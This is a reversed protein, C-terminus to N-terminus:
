SSNSLSAALVRERHEHRVRKFRRYGESVAITMGAAGFPLWDPLSRKPEVPKALEAHSIIAIDETMRVLLWPEDGRDDLLGRVRLVDGEKFRSARYGSASKIKVELMADGLDLTVGGSAVERVTGTVEILSWGDEMDPANLDVPRPTPFAVPEIQEWKDKTGVGLSLGDDNLTLTGTVRVTEGLKPTPQKSSGRVLVGHGDPSLLVYYNKNVIGPKTAVTGKISIRINPDIKTLMAHTVELAADPAKAATKKTTKTKPKAVPGAAKEGRPGALEDGEAVDSGSENRISGSESDGRPEHDLTPLEITDPPPTTIVAQEIETEVEGDLVWAMEESNKMWSQASPTQGYTMREVVSGDPRHLEVTDGGNNLKASTLQIRVTQGIQSILTMDAPPFLAIRGTADYLAYGNLADLQLGDPLVLEVWEKQGSPPAPHIRQLRFKPYDVVVTVTQVNQQVSPTSTVTPIMLMPPPTDIVTTIVTTTAVEATTTTPIVESVPEVDPIIEQTSTPTIVPETSTPTPEVWTCGDCIGPTGFDAIGEDFRDRTDATFWSGDQKRIMSARTPTSSGALASGDGTEDIMLGADDLLQIHLGDNPLSVASTIFPPDIALASKTDSASYNAILLASQPPIVQGTLAIGDAGGAGLLKYGTLDLPVEGLNWLELWEDATSKASGAWAVEGILLPGAPREAFATPIFLFFGYAGFLPVALLWAALRAIM